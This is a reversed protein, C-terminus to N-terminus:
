TVFGSVAGSGVQMSSTLRPTSTGSDRRGANAVHPLVIRHSTPSGASVLSSMMELTKASQIDVLIREDAFVLSFPLIAALIIISQPLQM